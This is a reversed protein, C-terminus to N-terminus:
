QIAKIARLLQEMTMGPNDKLTTKIDSATLQKGEYVPLEVRVAEEKDGLFTRKTTKWMYVNTGESMNNYFEVSEKVAPNSPNSDITEAMKVLDKQLLRNQDLTRGSPKTGYKKKYDVLQTKLQQAYDLKEKWNSGEKEPPFKEWKMQGRSSIQPYTTVGNIVMPKLSKWTEPENGKKKFKVYDKGDHKFISIIDEPEGTYGEAPSVNIDKKLQFGQTALLRRDESAQESESLETRFDRQKKLEEERFSQEKELQKEQFKQGIKQFALQQVFQPLQAVWPNVNRPLVTIAM